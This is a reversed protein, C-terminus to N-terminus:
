SLSVTLTAFPHFTREPLTIVLVKVFPADVYLVEKVFKLHQLADPRRAEVFHNRSQPLQLVLDAGIVIKNDQFSRQALSRIHEAAGFRDLSDNIRQFILTSFQPPHGFWEAFRNEIFPRAAEYV